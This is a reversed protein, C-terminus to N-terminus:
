GIWVEVGAGSASLVGSVPWRMADPADRAQEYVARKAEGAIALMVVRSDLLAALTLTIRPHPAYTPPDIAALIARGDPDM